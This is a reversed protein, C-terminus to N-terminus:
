KNRRIPIIRRDIGKPLMPLEGILLNNSKKLAEQGKFYVDDDNLRFETCSKALRTYIPKRYRYYDNIAKFGLDILDYYETDMGRTRGFSQEALIKSKFPEAINNVSQLDKVDSATGLSKTTSLIIRKDLQELKIGKPTYTTYIGLQDEILPFTNILYDYVVLIAANTAIYFINKKGNHLAKYLLINLMNYFSPEKVIYMSYANKDFGYVNKCRSIVTPTPRSNYILAKYHTHPDNEEDYLSISPVNKFYLQFIKNARDDSKGPTATVYFTKYTNTYFDIKCVNDFNLHAEDYVKIGIKMYRFLETIKDWGRTDGYSKITDHSAIIYKIDSIDKRHFLRDISGAGQIFYVGQPRTDTYDYVCKKWQTMWDNYSMIIISRLQLKAISTITCYTKGKGTKLNISLQSKRQNNPYKGEGCMFDITELQVDNRPKYRVKIQDVKDKPDGNYVVNANTNFLRELYLIDIGRPIILRKEKEIYEMCMEIHKHTLPDWLKFNYELQKCDGLNYDNIVIKTSYVDIKAM